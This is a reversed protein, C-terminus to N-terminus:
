AKLEIGAHVLALGFEFFWLWSSRLFCACSGNLHDTNHLYQIIRSGGILIMKAHESGSAAGFGVYNNATLGCDESVVIRFLVELFVVGVRCHLRIGRFGVKCFMIISM